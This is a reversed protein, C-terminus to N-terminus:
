HKIVIVSIGTGTELDRVFELENRISGIDYVVFLQKQYVKGYAQIDANIEDVILKSKKEDKSLKVELALSLKLLIFDPISHKHAVKVRGSERDYDIGKQMGRGILLTELADQVQKEKEPIEFLAARLNAKLFDKLAKIQDDKVGLENEILSRLMSLNAHVGVHFNKQQAPVTDGEGPIKEEQWLDLFETLKPDIEKAANAIQNYKRIFHKYGAYKWLNNPGDTSGTAATNMSDLLANATALLGELKEKRKEM